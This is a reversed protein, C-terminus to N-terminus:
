RQNRTIVSNRLLGIGEIECEVVDGHMLFEPPKRAFGVGHPTGTLILDGPQLTLGESLSAITTPIDFILERTNSRQKEVGNVRLMIERAGPDTFEDATVICPGLPCFTDFSKGKFFQGGHRFQVDRASIDNAVTFGFIHDFASEKPIDRGGPGIVVALEVEWDAQETLAADIDIAADPGVVTAPTKTFFMPFPPDETRTGFLSAGEAAHARYNLGLCMLNRAPRPIPALLTIGALALGDSPGAGAVLTRALALADPGAEILGLVSDPLRGQSATGLDVVRDNVLAGARANGDGARYTVLRM